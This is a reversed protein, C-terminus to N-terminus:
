AASQVAPPPSIMAGVANLGAHWLQACDEMEYALLDTMGVWDSSNLATQIERLRQAFTQLLNGLPTGDVRIRELDLAFCQSVALVTREAERWRTLCESLKGLAAQYQDARLLEAAEIKFLDAETVLGKADELSELAAQRADVSEIFVIRDPLSLHRIAEMQQVDPAEGDILLRVVLRNKRRIYGLIQGITTLGAAAADFSEDDIIVSMSDGSVIM